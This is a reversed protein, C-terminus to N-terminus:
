SDVDREIYVCGYQKNNDELPSIRWVGPHKLMLQDAEGYTVFRTEVRPKEPACPHFFLWITDKILRLISRM